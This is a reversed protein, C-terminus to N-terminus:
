EPDQNLFVMLLVPLFLTKVHAVGSTHHQSIFTLPSLLAASSPRDGTPHQQRHVLGHFDTLLSSGWHRDRIDECNRCFCFFAAASVPAGVCVHNGKIVIPTRFMGIACHGVQLVPCM